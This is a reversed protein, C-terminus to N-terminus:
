IHSQEPMWLMLHLTVICLVGARGLAPLVCSESAETFCLQELTNLPVKWERQDLRIIVQNRAGARNDEEGAGSPKTPESWFVADEPNVSTFDTEMLFM